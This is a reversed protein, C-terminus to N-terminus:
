GNNLLREYHKAIDESAKACQRQADIATQLMSRLEQFESSVAKTEGHGRKYTDQQLSAEVDRPLGTVANQGKTMAQLGGHDAAIVMERDKLGLIHGYMLLVFVTPVVFAILIARNGGSGTSLSLSNKWSSGLYTGMGVIFLLIGMVVIEFPAKLIMHAVVSSQLEWQGTSDSLHRGDALWIRLDKTEIQGGFSSQQLGSFFVSLLSLILSMVFSGRAVYHCEELTPLQLATVACSSILGGQGKDTDSTRLLEHVTGGVIIAIMGCVSLQSIRWSEVQADTGHNILDQTEELEKVDIMLWPKWRVSKGYRKEAYDTTIRATSGRNSVYRSILLARGALRAPLGLLSFFEVMDM